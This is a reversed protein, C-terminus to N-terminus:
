EKGGKIGTIEIKTLEARFGTARRFRAKAKFKAVRVKDGKIQEVIKATVKANKVMPTGVVTTADDGMLLVEEFSVDTGKEGEIKDVSLILGSSVKYQKGSAKIVAYNM